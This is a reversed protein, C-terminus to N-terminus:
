RLDDLDVEEEAARELLKRKDQKRIARKGAPEQVDDAAEEDAAAASAPAMEKGTNLAKQVVARQARWRAQLAHRAHWASRLLPFTLIVAVVIAIVDFANFDPPLPPASPPPVSPSPPPPSPPFPPPPSPPRACMLRNGEHSKCVGDTVWCPRLDINTADWPDLYFHKECQDLALDSCWRCEDSATEIGCSASRINTRECMAACEATDTRWICDEAVAFHAQLLLALQMARWGLRGGGLVLPRSRKRCARDRGPSLERKKYAPPCPAGGPKVPTSFVRGIFTADVNLLVM